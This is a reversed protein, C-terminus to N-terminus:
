YFIDVMINMTLDVNEASFGKKATDVKKWNVIEGCMPCKRPASAMKEEETMRHNQLM